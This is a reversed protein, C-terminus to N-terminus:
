ETEFGESGRFILKAGKAKTDCTTVASREGYEKKKRRRTKSM